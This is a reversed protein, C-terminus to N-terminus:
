AKVEPWPMAVERLGPLDVKAYIMTTDIHRHRLVDSIEKLSAGAQVMRAAATHRLVHSGKSAVNVGSRIM